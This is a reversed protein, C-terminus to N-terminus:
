GHKLNNNIPARYSLIQMSLKSILYVLTAGLSLAAIYSTLFVVYPVSQQITNFVPLESIFYPSIYFMNFTEDNLVGSHYVVINIFLAVFVFATFVYIAQLLDTKEFKSIRTKILYISVVFSGCHLWMTHINVLIDETFCSDPIMMAMFGGLITIFSMYSLLADRIKGSKIVSCILAVYMPTSCLQFPASYWQYDSSIINLDIDYTYTWILQKALELILSVFGYVFLVKRQEIETHKKKTCLSMITCVSLVLWLVHFWGWPTPETMETQLFLLLSKM